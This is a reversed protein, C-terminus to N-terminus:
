GVRVVDSSYDAMALLAVMPTVVAGLGVGLVMKYLVFQTTTVSGLRTAAFIAIAVPSLVAATAAGLVAGRRLRGHALRRPVALTELRPLGGSRLEAWVATTCMACTFLPLLFFTGVTDTLVNAKGPAPMGWVPVVHQSRVSLWAILGNLVLNVVASVVLANVVVWRRHPAPLSRWQGMGVLAM